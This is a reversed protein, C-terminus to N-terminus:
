PFWDQITTAQVVRVNSVKPFSDTGGNGPLVYVHEVSPSQSLKWALSHERGGKGILLVTTKTDEM